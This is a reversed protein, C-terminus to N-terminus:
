KFRRVKYSGTWIKVKKVREGTRPSHWIKGEGAYIGVHYVSRGNTFAILDGKRKKSKSIAKGQKAQDGALRKLNAAGAKKFVYQTYGSCDFGRKTTGGWRYPTGKLSAAVKIVKSEEKATLAQAPVATLSMGVIAIITTIALALVRKFNSM